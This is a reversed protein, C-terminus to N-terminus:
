IVVESDEPLPDNKAAVYTRISEIKTRSEEILAEVSVVCDAQVRYPCTDKTDSYVLRNDTYTRFIYPTQGIDTELVKLRGFTAGSPTKHYTIKIKYM